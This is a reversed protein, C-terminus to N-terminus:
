AILSRTAACRDKIEARSPARSSTSRVFGCPPETDGSPSGTFCHLEVSAGTLGRSAVHRPTRASTTLEAGFIKVITCIEATRSSRFPAAARPWLSRHRDSSSSTSWSAPLDSRLIATCRTIQIKRRRGTAHSLRVTSKGRHELASAPAKDKQHPAHIPRRISVADWEASGASTVRDQLSLNQIGCIPM